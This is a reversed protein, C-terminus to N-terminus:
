LMCVNDQAYAYAVGYGVGEWTSSEIHAIGYNTRTITADYTAGEQASATEAVAASLGVALAAFGVIRTRMNRERTERERDLSSRPLVICLLIAPLFLAGSFTGGFGM